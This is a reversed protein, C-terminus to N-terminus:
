ISLDFSKNGISEPSQQSLTGDQQPHFRSQWPYRCRPASPRPRRQDKMPREFCNIQIALQSGPINHSNQVGTNRIPELVPLDERKPLPAAELYFLFTPLVQCCITAPDVVSACDASPVKSRLFPLLFLQFIFELHELPWIARSLSPTNKPLLTLKFEGKDWYKNVFAVRRTWM